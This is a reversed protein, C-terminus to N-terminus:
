MHYMLIYVCMYYRQKTGEKIGEDHLMLHISEIDYYKFATSKIDYYKLWLTAFLTFM